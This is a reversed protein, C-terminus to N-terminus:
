DALRDTCKVETTTKQLLDVVKTMLNPDIDLLLPLGDVTDLPLVKSLLEREECNALERLSDDTVSDSYVLIIAIPVITKGHLLEVSKRTGKSPGDTAALCFIVKDRNAIAKIPESEIGFRRFQEPLNGLDKEPCGVLCIKQSTLRKRVDSPSLDLDTKLRARYNRLLDFAEDLTSTRSEFSGYALDALGVAVIKGTRSTVYNYFGNGRWSFDWRFWQRLVKPQANTKSFDIVLLPVATRSPLQSSLASTISENLARWNELAENQDESVDSESLTVVLIQDDGVLSNDIKM